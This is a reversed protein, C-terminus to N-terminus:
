VTRAIGKLIEDSDVGFLGSTRKIPYRINFFFAYYFDTKITTDQFVVVDKTPNIKRRIPPNQESGYCAIVGMAVYNGLIEVLFSQILAIAAFPDPPVIGTLKQGMQQTTNRIVWHKQKMANIQLYDIAAPDTLSESDSYDQMDTFVGSLTKYLLTDAPDSFADQKAMLAAAIFSGDLTVTKTSLDDLVVERKAWTNGCLVHCGHSPSNGSVQLTNKSTYIISDPTDEDGLPSNAPMGVWLMRVKSPFNFMDNCLEVSNIASGLAKFKNLVCVDSIQPRDETGKVARKYDSVQYIGDDDLDKVQCTYWEALNGGADNGIEVGILLDNDVSAPILGDRASAADRWLLPTDYESASRLRTGTVYYVQGPDPEDGMWQYKVNLTVGPDSAFYVYPTDSVWTYAVNALTSANKVSIISSPTNDLIVYYTGPSGTVSGIADYIIGTPTSMSNGANRAMYLVNDPLTVLGGSGNNALTVTFTNFGGEITSAVYTGTVVKSAVSTVDLTYLRDDKAYYYIRGPRAAFGWTDGVVFATLNIAPWVVTIYVGQELLVDTWSTTTSEVLSLSGSSYPLEDMGAWVITATREGGTMSATVSIGTSVTTNDAEFATITYNGAAGSSDNTLSVVGLGPAAATINGGHTWNGALNIAAATAVAVDNDTVAAIIDIIVRGTVPVWGLAVRKYDFTVVDLGDSLSFHEHNSISALTLNLSGTAATGAAATCEAKYHRTYSGTFAASAGASFAAQSTNTATSPPNTAWNTNGTAGFDGVSAFQSNTSDYGSHEEFKAPGYSFWEFTDLAAFNTAGFDFTLYIGDMLLRNTPSTTGTGNAVVQFTKVAVGARTGSGAVTATIASCVPDENTATVQAFSGVYAPIVFDGTNTEDAPKLNETYLAQNPFLGVSLIRRADSFPLDDLVERSSSQYDIYYSKTSDYDATNFLIQDYDTGAGMSQYFKWKKTPVENGDGDYLSVPPTQDNKAPHDLVAIYPPTTTFTLKENEIWARPVSANQTMALRHGKGVYCPRFTVGTPATPRPRFVQGLYSGPRTYKTAKPFAAM